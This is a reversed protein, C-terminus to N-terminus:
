SKGGLRSPVTFSVVAGSGGHRDVWIRGGWSAVIDAAMTLGLGSGPVDLAEAARFFPTFVKDVYEDAIGPGNDAISFVHFGEKLICRITITPQEVAAAYKFANDLISRFVRTLKTRPAVIVPLKSPHEIRYKRGPYIAKLQAVVEGIISKTELKEAAELSTRCVGLERLGDLMQRLIASNEVICAAAFRGEEDLVGAQETQLRKAFAEITILPARIDHVMAPLRDAISTMLSREPQLGAGLPLLCYIYLAAGEAEFPAALAILNRNDGALNLIDACGGRQYVAGAFPSDDFPLIQGTRDRVGWRCYVERFDGAFPAEAATTVASACSENAYIIDYDKDVIALGLSLSHATQGILHLREGLSLDANYHRSRGDWLDALLRLNNLDDNSPRDHGAEFLRLVLNEGGDHWLRVLAESSGNAAEGFTSVSDNIIAVRGDIEKGLREVHAPASLGIGNPPYSGAMIMRGQDDPLYCEGAGFGGAHCFIRALGDFDKQDADDHILRLFEHEWNLSSARRSARSPMIIFQYNVRNGGIFNVTVVAELNRATGGSEIISLSLAEYFPEYRNRRCLVGDIIQQSEPSIFENLSKGFLEVRSLGFLEEAADDIYVFRGRLDIKFVACATQARAAVNITDSM